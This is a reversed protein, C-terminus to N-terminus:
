AWHRRWTRRSIMSKDTLAHRSLHRLVCLLLLMLLKLLMVLLQQQLLLLLPLLPLVKCHQSGLVVTHATVIDACACAFAAAASVTAPPSWGTDASDTCAVEISAPHPSKQPTPPLEALSVHRLLAAAM